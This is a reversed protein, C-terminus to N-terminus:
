PAPTNAPSEAPTEAEADDPLLEESVEYRVLESNLSPAGISSSSRNHIRRYDRLLDDASDPVTYPTGPAAAVGATAPGDSETDVAVQQLGLVAVLAVSAAIALGALPRMFRPAKSPEEVEAAAFESEDLQAAIRERLLSMGAVVREGRMVRGMALYEAARQRLEKDQCLRRLLLETENQPLEGDVFASIQMKIADNM